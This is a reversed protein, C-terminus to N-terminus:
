PFSFLLTGGLVLSFSSILAWAIFMLSHFANLKRLFHILDLWASPLPISSFPPCCVPCPQPVVGEELLLPKLKHGPLPMESIQSEKPVQPQPNMDLEGM